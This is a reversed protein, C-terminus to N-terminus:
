RGDRGPLLERFTVINRFHSSYTPRGVCAAESRRMCRSASAARSSAQLKRRSRRSQRIRPGLDLTEGDRGFDGQEWLSSMVDAFPRQAGVFNAPLSLLEVARHNIVAVKRGGDVM